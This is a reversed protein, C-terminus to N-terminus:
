GFLRGFWSRGAERHHQGSIKILYHGLVCAQQKTMMVRLIDPTRQAAAEATAMIELRLMLHVDADYHSWGVLAGHSEM